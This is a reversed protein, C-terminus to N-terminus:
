KDRHSDDASDVKLIRTISSAISAAFQEIDLKKYSDSPCDITIREQGTEDSVTISARVVVYKGSRGRIKEKNITDLNITKDPWERIGYSEGATQARTGYKEGRTHWKVERDVTLTAEINGTFPPNSYFSVGAKQSISKQLSSCFKDAAKQAEPESQLKTKVLPHLDKTTEFVVITSWQWNIFASSDSKDSNAGSVLTTLALICFQVIFILSMARNAYNIQM